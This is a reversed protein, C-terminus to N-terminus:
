EELIWHDFRPSRYSGDPTREQYEIRCRMGVRPHTTLFEVKRGGIVASSYLADDLVLGAENFEREFLALQEMNRTKTMTFFGEDDRLVIIAFPGRNEILGKSAVFGMCTMEASHLAKIKMWCRRRKGPEYKGQLDKIIAGEGDRAWVESLFDVLQQENNIEVQEIARVAGHPPVASRVMASRTGQTYTLTSTGHSELIDFVIYCLKHENSLDSVGYSRANQETDVVFEGDYIGDPLKLAAELIQKPIRREKGTRSWANVVGNAVRMIIRHGDYKEEVAYRGKAFSVRTDMPVALMPKIYM